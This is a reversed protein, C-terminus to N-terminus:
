LAESAPLDYFPKSTSEPLPLTALKEAIRASITGPEGFLSSPALTARFDASLGLRIARIIEDTDGSTDIVSPARLRGKQRDGINVCACGLAAAEIIGSSSNGIVLEARRLLNIYNTSGYSLKFFANTRNSAYEQLQTNISAGGADANAGSLLCLADPFADLAKLVSNLQESPPQSSLTQPHYTVLFLPHTLTIGLSAGLEAETLMPNEILADLGPAGYTFIRSPEEGLQTVRQAYPLASVFHWYSLKTIAHRLAEDIAGETLEGGHLHAVPIRLLAAASAAAFIEYRDGLVVLLDPRLQALCQAIADLARATIGAVARDSDNEIALDLRATIAFGDSEIDGVTSGHQEALHAGTVILQLDVRADQRLLRLLPRLLGYEARTGTIVAIRRFSNSSTSAPMPM